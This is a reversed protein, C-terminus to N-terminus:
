KGQGGGAQARVDDAAAAAFASAPGREKLDGGNRRPVHDGAAGRLLARAVRPPRGDGAAARGCRSFHCRDRMRAVLPIWSMMPLSAWAVAARPSPSCCLFARQGEQEVIQHAVQRTACPARANAQPAMETGSARFEPEGTVNLCCLRSAQAGQFFWSPDITSRTRWQM